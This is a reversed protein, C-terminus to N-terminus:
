PQPIRLVQGPYITSSQIGSLDKIDAILNRIDIGQDAHTSAVDWLTDGAAVVYETTAAPPEEAGAAGGILLFVTLVSALFVSLRVSLQQKAAQNMEDGEQDPGSPQQRREPHDSRANSLNGFM